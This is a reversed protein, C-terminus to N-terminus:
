PECALYEKIKNQKEGWKILFVNVAKSAVRLAFYTPSVPLFFVPRVHELNFLRGCQFQGGTSAEAQPQCGQSEQGRGTGYVLLETTLQANEGRNNERKGRIGRLGERFLPNQILWAVSDDIILIKSSHPFLSLSPLLLLLFPLIYEVHLDAPFFIADFNRM